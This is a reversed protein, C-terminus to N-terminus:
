AASQVHPYKAGKRLNDKAWLPQLNTYHFCARQQEIDTLDFLCIPRIHDIHIETRRSWSMGKQFKSELYQKLFAPTCGVLEHTRHQKKVGAYRLVSNMRCRLRCELLFAPSEKRMRAAWEKQWKLRAKRTKAYYARSKVLLQEKNKERYERCKKQERERNSAYYQKAWEKIKDPNKTRFSAQYERLQEKNKQYYGRCRAKYADLHKARCRLNVARTVQPNEKRLKRKKDCIVEANKRHYERRKELIAAKNEQYKVRLRDSQENSARQIESVVIGRVIPSTSAACVIGWIREETTM